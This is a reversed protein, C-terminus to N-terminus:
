ILRLFKALSLRDLKNRRAALTKLTPVLNLLFFFIKKDSGSEGGGASGGNRDM